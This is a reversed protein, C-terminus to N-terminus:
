RARHPRRPALGAARSCGSARPEDDPTLEAARELAQAEAALGGALRADAAAAELAEAVSEDPGDAAEPLTGPAVHGTPRGLRDRPARRPARGPVGRRLGRVADLPHDFEIAGRRRAVLGTQEIEDLAGADRRRALSPRYPRGAAALLLLARRADPSSTRLARLM